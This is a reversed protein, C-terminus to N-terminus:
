VTHVSAERQWFRLKRCATLFAKADAASKLAIIGEDMDTVGGKRLLPEAAGVFAIFKAHAYADAVFDRATAENSLRKAGDDSVIIAVADYLVSPGGNVKQQ